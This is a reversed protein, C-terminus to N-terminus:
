ARGDYWFKLRIKGTSSAKRGLILVVGGAASNRIHRGIGFIDGDILSPENFGNSSRATRGWHKGSDNRKDVITQESLALFGNAEQVRRQVAKSGRRRIHENIHRCAVISLAAALAEVSGFPPIRDSAPTSRVERLEQSGESLKLTCLLLLGRARTQKSLFILLAKV